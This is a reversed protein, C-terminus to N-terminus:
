FEGLKEPTKKYLKFSQDFRDILFSWMVMLLPLTLIWMIVSELLLYFSTQVQISGARFAFLSAWITYIFGLLCIIGILKNVTGEKNDAFIWYIFLPLMMLGYINRYDFSNGALFCFLLLGVGIFYSYSILTNSQAWEIKFRKALLFALSLSLIFGTYTMARTYQDLPIGLRDFLTEGGFTFSGTVNPINSIILRVDHFNAFIYTFFILLASLYIICEKWRRSALFLLTFLALAFFPYFKALSAVLLFAASLAHYGLREKAAFIASMAVLIYAIIDNNAREMVLLLAPSFLFALIILSETWRKPRILYVTVAIYSVICIPSIWYTDIKSIGFYSGLLWLQSYIHIRGLPDYPNEVLVNIGDAHAEVASTVAIMDLFLINLHPVAFLDWRKTVVLICFGGLSFIMVLLGHLLEPEPKAYQHLKPDM